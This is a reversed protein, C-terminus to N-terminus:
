GIVGATCIATSSSKPLRTGVNVPLMLMASCVLGPLPVRPPVVVTAADDPTALKVL